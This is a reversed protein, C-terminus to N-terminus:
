IYHFLISKPVSQVLQDKQWFVISYIGLVTMALNFFLSHQQLSANTPNLALISGIGLLLGEAIRSFLYGLTITKSYQRLRLFLMIGVGIVTISNILELSVGLFLLYTNQTGTADLLNSVVLNNGISYCLTALLFVFAALKEYLRYKKQQTM